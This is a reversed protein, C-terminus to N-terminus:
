YDCDSDEGVENVQAGNARLLEEVDGHEYRCAMGLPTTGDARARDAEAGKELLLRAADVHGKQCAIWLPTAGDKDARDVAAGKDLLLRVVDVKGKECALHLPTTLDHSPGCGMSGTLPQRLEGPPQRDKVLRRARAPVRM